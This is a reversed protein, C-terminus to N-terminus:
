SAIKTKKTKNSANQVNLHHTRKNQKKRAKVLEEFGSDEMSMIAKRKAKFVKTIDKLVTDEDLEFEELQRGLFNEIDHVLEVDYQTVLSIATGGRGARATRGVRHVYDRTFRPVDYNLVLDVTPIDLGRSAVDTAILIAVQGSKFRNLSALRQPQSKMSHLSVTEVGLEEMVLSLLHCTRCKSAFIIASRINREELTSMIHAMYVVKVNAPVFVYNQQLSEVTQFGEYAQYFFADGGFLEHLAKLDGTMTASFLLTQRKSSISSLVVRLEDEFGVDLLRDAEDLVLFKTKSFAAAIDPDHLLHQKIRGPTAVVVHPRQMLVQAQTTMDMGGVVVACRLHMGSGLAKFQDCIQFALERTPTLVLAFIGYPVEALKHLIPLAFAATKGSGTEAMGLVNKGKLIQPVCAQQVPTPKRMGLEKCAGVLWEAVGLEEFGMSAREATGYFHAQAQAQASTKAVISSNNQKKRNNKKPISSAKSFIQVAQEPDEEEEEQEQAPPMDMM